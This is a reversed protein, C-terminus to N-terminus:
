PDCGGPGCGGGGGGGGGGNCGYGAVGFVGCQSGCGPAGLKFAFGLNCATSPSCDSNALATLSIVLADEAEECTPACAIHTGTSFSGLCAMPVAGRLPDIPAPPDGGDTAPTFLVLEPPAPVANVSSSGTWAATVPSAILIGLLVLSRTM